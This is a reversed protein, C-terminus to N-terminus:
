LNLYDQNLTILMSEIEKYRPKEPLKSKKALFDLEKITEDVFSIVEKQNWKGQKIDLITNAFKLPYELNCTTLLEKGELVIRVASSAFKVDYGYKTYLEQRNGVKSLRDVVKNYVKSLKDTLSINIDGITAHSDYFKIGPVGATRFEALLKTSEYRTEGNRETIKNVLWDHALNLGDFNDLKIHMKHLQSHGYGIYKQTLGKWPFIYRNALLEEGFANAWIVKNKPTFFQSLINPNNEMGLKVFKNLSYFKIDEAEANNKGFENKSVISLDVEDISKLGFFYEKSPIFIGVMDIDSTPTATGHLNSGSVMELIKNTKVLERENV